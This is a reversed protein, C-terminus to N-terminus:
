DEKQKEKLVEILEKAKGVADTVGDTLVNVKERAVIKSIAEPLNLYDEILNGSDANYFTYELTFNQKTVFHTNGNISIIHIKLLFFTLGIGLCIGLFIRM